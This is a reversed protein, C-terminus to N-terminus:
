AEGVCAKLVKELADAVSMNGGHWDQRYLRYLSRAAQPQEALWVLAEDDTQPIEPVGDGVLRMVESNGM